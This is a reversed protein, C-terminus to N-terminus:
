FWVSLNFTLLELAGEDDAVFRVTGDDDESFCVRGWELGSSRECDDNAADRGSLLPSPSEEEFGLEGNRSENPFPVGDSLLLFGEAVVVVVVVVVVAAAAVVGPIAGGAVERDLLVLVEGSSEGASLATIDCFSLLNSLDFLRRFASRSPVDSCACWLDPFAM